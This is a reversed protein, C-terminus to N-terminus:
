FLGDIIRLYAPSKRNKVKIWLKCPGSKYPAALRKSVTGELGLKCAAEFVKEGDGELHEVYQIGNRGACCSKWNARVSQFGAPASRRRRAAPSRLRVDDEVSCM